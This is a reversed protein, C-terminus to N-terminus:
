KGANKGGLLYSVSIEGIQNLSYDFPESNSKFLNILSHNVRGEIQLVGFSFYRSFGLGASIGYEVRANLDMGYYEEAEQGSALNVEEKESLLYSVYPGINLILRTKRQGLNFHSLFPIQVYNLSRSYSDPTELMEKWGAQLYNLEIQIGLCKQSIHRFVLGGVFGVLYDQEVEPDFYARSASAGLKIGWHTEPVFIAEPTYTSDKQPYVTLASLLMLGIVLGRKM